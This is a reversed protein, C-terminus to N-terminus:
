HKVTGPPSVALDWGLEKVGGQGLNLVMTFSNRADVGIVYIHTNTDNYAPLSASTIPTVATAAGGSSTGTYFGQRDAAM